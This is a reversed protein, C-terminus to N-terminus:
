IGKRVYEVNMGQTTLFNVIDTNKNQWETIFNMLEGYGGMFVNESDRFASFTNHERFIEICDTKNGNVIMAIESYTKM